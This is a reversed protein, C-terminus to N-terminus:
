DARLRPILEPIRAASAPELHLVAYPHGRLISAPCDPTIPGLLMQRVAEAKMAGPVVCSFYPASFLTPITLTLAAAPVEQLSAFCGDHVQQRRSAEALQVIRLPAPDAFDAFPPDNFALHGNEGIGACTIDPPSQKILEAYRAAEDAPNAESNMYHVTGPRVRDFLRDRLFRGFNQPADTTLGIYEDMQFATVCHWDLHEQTALAALFEEQSPASAFIMALRDQAATRRKMEVAVARGAAMGMAPRSPHVIVRLRDVRFSIVPESPRPM